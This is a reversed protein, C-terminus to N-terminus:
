RGAQALLKELEKVYGDYYAALDPNYSSYGDLIDTKQEAYIDRLAKACVLNAPEAEICKKYQFFTVYREDSGSRKLWYYYRSMEMVELYKKGRYREPGGLRLLEASRQYAPSYGNIMAVDYAWTINSKPSTGLKKDTGKVWADGEEYVRGMWYATGGCKQVTGADAIAAGKERDIQAPTALEGTLYAQSLLTAVECNKWREVPDTVNWTAADAYDRDGYTELLRGAAIAASIQQRIARQQEAPITAGPYRLGDVFAADSTIEVLAGYRVNGRRKAQDASFAQLARRNAAREEDSYSSDQTRRSMIDAMQGGIIGVSNYSQGGAVGSPKCAVYDYHRADGAGGQKNDNLCSEAFAQSSLLVLALSSLRALRKM